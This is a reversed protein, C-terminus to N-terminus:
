PGWDPSQYTHGDHGLIRRENTGDSNIVYLGSAKDGGAFVRIEYAIYRGDPSMAPSYELMGKGNDTVRSVKKTTLDYLFLDATGLHQGDFTYTVFLLRGDPTFRPNDGIFIRQLQGTARDLLHIGEEAEPRVRTFVVWKGDPSVDVENLAPWQTTTFSTLQRERNTAFDYEYLNEPTHIEKGVATYSTDWGVFILGSEDPLLAFSGGNHTLKYEKVVEGKPYGLVVIHQLLRRCYLRDGNKSWKPTDGQRYIRRTRGKDLVCVGRASLRGM